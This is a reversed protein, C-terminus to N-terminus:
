PQFGEICVLTGDGPRTPTAITWWGDAWTTALTAHNNLACARIAPTANAAKIRLPMVRGREERDEVVVFLQRGRWFAYGTVGAPWQIPQRLVDHLKALARGVTWTNIEDYGLPYYLLRDAGTKSFFAAAEPSLPGDGKFAVLPV